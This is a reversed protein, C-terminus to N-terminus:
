KSIVVENFFHYPANFWSHCFIMYIYGIWSVLICPYLSVLICPDLDPKFPGYIQSIFSDNLILPFKGMNENDFLMRLKDGDYLGSRAMHEKIRSFNFWFVVELCTLNSVLSRFNMKKLLIDRRKILTKYTTKWRPGLAWPFIEQKIEEDDEEMDHALFRCHYNFWYTRKGLLSVSSFLYAYSIQRFFM